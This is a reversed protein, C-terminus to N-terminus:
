VCENFRLHDIPPMVTVVKYAIPTLKAIIVVIPNDDIDRGAIAVKKAGQREIIEGNFIAAVIDGKFYGREALRKKTHDGIIIKGQGTMLVKKIDKLQM